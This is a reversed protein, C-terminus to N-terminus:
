GLRISAWCSAGSGVRPSNTVDRKVLIRGTHGFHYLALAVGEGPQGEATDLVHMSLKGM